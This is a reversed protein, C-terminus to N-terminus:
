KEVVSPRVLIECMRSCYIILTFCNHNKNVKSDKLVYPEKEAGLM